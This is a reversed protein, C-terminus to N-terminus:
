PNQAAAHLGALHQLVIMQSDYENEPVGGRARVWEEVSEPKELLETDYAGHDTGLFTYFADSDYLLEEVPQEEGYMYPPIFAKGGKFVEGFLRLRSGRATLTKALKYVLLRNAHQVAPTWISDLDNQPIAFVNHCFRIDLDMKRWAFEITRAAIKLMSTMHELTPTPSPVLAHDSLKLTTLNEPCGGFKLYAFLSSEVGVELYKLNRLSERMKSGSEYSSSVTGLYRIDGAYHTLRELSGKQVALADLFGPDSTRDEPVLSPWDRDFLHMREGISLEKL